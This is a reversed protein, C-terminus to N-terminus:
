HNNHQYESQELILERDRKNLGEPFEIHRYRELISPNREIKEHM